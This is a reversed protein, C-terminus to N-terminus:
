IFCTIGYRIALWTRWSLYDKTLRIDDKLNKVYTIKEILNFYTLTTRLYTLSNSIMESICKKGIYSSTLNILRSCRVMQNVQWALKIPSENSLTISNDNSRYFYVSLSIKQVREALLFSHLLYDTDEYMSDEIFKLNNELLFDRRFIQKWPGIIKDYWMPNQDKFLYTEGSVIESCHINNIQQESRTHNFQLIDLKNSKALNLVSNLVNPYIYDDSDIFWVFEGRANMLGTNRAGGQKRNEIHELLVINKYDKQLNRVIDKSNDPSCDDICLIEYEDYPINQNLCSRLCEEIYLEVNYFPIIISLLM